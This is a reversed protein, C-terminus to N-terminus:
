NSTQRIRQAPVENVNAGVKRTAIATSESIKEFVKCVM